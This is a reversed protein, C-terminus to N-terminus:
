LMKKLDISRTKVIKKGEKTFSYIKTREGGKVETELIGNEKLSYLIPYVAGPSVVVHFRQFVAKTIDYGCMTQEKLFYLIINELNKRVIEEKDKSIKQMVM